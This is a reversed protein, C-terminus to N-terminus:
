FVEARQDRGRWQNRQGVSQRGRHDDVSAVELMRFCLDSFIATRWFTDRSLSNAAGPFVAFCSRAM